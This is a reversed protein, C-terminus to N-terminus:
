EIACASNWAHQMAEKVADQRQQTKSDSRAARKPKEAEVPRKAPKPAEVPTEEVPDEPAVAPLESEERQQESAPATAKPRSAALRLCHAWACSLAAIGPVGSSRVFTGKHQHHPLLEKPPHMGTGTNSLFNFSIMMSVLFLALFFLVIVNFLTLRKFV